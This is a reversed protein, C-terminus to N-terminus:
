EPRSEQFSARRERAGDSPAETGTPSRDGPGVGARRMAPNSGRSIADEAVLRAFREVGMCGMYRGDRDYVTVMGEHAHWDIGVRLATVHRPAALQERAAELQEFLSDLAALAEREDQPIRWSSNICKRILEKQESHQHSDPM